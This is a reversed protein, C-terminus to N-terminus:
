SQFFLFSFFLNCILKPSSDSRDSIEAGLDEFFLLPICAFRLAHIEPILGRHTVWALV